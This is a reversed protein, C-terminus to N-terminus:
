REVLLLARSPVVVARGSAGAGSSSHHSQMWTAHPFRQLLWLELAEFCMYSYAQIGVVGQLVAMILVTTVLWRCSTPMFLLFSAVTNGYARCPRALTTSSAAPPRPPPAAPADAALLLPAGSALCRQRGCASAECSRM